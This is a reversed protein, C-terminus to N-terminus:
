HHSIQVHHINEFIGGHECLSGFSGDEDAFEVRFFVQDDPCNWRNFYELARIKEKEGEADMWEKYKPNYVENGNEDEIWCDPMSPDNWDLSIGDLHGSTFEELIDDLSLQKGLQVFVAEAINTTSTSYKNWEWPSHFEREEKGFMLEHLEEKSGPKESFALVFSSSSSNSVFGSRIKV